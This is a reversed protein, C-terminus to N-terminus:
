TGSQGKPVEQVKLYSKETANRHEQLKYKQMEAIQIAKSKYFFFDTTQRATNRYQYPSM